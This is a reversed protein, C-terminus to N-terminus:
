NGLDSVNLRSETETIIPYLQNLGLTIGYRASAVQSKQPQKGNDCTLYIQESTDLVTLVSNLHGNYLGVWDNPVLLALYPQSLVEYLVMFEACQEIGGALLRDYWGGMEEMIEASILIDVYFIAADFDDGGTENLIEDRTPLDALIQELTSNATVGSRSEAAQIASRLKELGQTIGARAAYRNHPSLTNRNGNSCHEVVPVSADLIDTNAELTLIAIDAWNNPVDTFILEVSLLAVLVYYLMFEDCQQTHNIGNYGDLAGGMKEVAFLYDKQLSIFEAADFPIFLDPIAVPTDPATESSDNNQYVSIRQELLQREGSTSSALALVPLSAVLLAFLFSVAFKRTTSIM